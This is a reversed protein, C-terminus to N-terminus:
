LSFYKILDPFSEFIIIYRIIEKIMQLSQTKTENVKEKNQVTM